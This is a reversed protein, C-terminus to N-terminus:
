KGILLRTRLSLYASQEGREGLMVRDETEYTLDRPYRALKKTENSTDYEKLILAKCDDKDAIKLELSM